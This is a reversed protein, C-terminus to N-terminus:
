FFDGLTSSFHHMLVSKWIDVNSCVEFIDVLSHLFQVTVLLQHLSRIYLQFSFVIIVVLCQVHQILVSDYICIYHGLDDHKIEPCTM